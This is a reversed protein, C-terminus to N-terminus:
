ASVERFAVGCAQLAENVNTVVVVRGRWAAHWDVQAPTLKRASPPKKGDKIELLVNSGDPIGALADPCGGGVAHLLQVSIGAKRLAAVIEKQNEDVKAARRM